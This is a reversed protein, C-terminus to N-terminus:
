HLDTALPVNDWTKQLAKNRTSCSVLVPAETKVKSFSEYESITDTSKPRNATM